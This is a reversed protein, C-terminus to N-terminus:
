AASVQVLLSSFSATQCSVKLLVSELALSPKTLVAPPTM